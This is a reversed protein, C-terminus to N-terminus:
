PKGGRDIWAQITSVRWRPSRRGILLDPKPLRGCARMREITRRNCALLRELDSIRLLPKIAAAMTLGLKVALDQPGISDALSLPGSPHTAPKPVAFFYILCIRRTPIRTQSSRRHM